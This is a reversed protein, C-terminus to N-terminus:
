KKGARKAKIPTVTLTSKGVETHPKTFKAQHGTWAKQAADLAARLEPAAAVAADVDAVTTQTEIGPSWTVRALTSSQSFADCGEARALMAKWTTTKATVADAELERFRLLNVALTDMEDDIIPEVYEGAAAEDLHELFSLAVGELVQAIAEDYEIWEFHMEGPDFVGPAVEIRDEWAYLCRRSGTVRMQWIIQFLYGKKAFAPSSPSVDMGATKIESTLLSGDFATGTGDPSALFRPNDAARVIRSEPSIAYRLMIQEAIAPERDRGWAIVRVYNLDEQEARWGLKVAILDREKKTGIFLDRIETATVGTRREALWEPRDADSAGVRQEYDVLAAATM